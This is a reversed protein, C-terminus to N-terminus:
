LEWTKQISFNGDHTYDFSVGHYKLDDETFSSSDSFGSIALGIGGIVGVIGLLTKGGSVESTCVSGPNALACADAEDQADQRAKAIYGGSVGTLAIGGAIQFIDAALAASPTALLAAIILTKVLQKM